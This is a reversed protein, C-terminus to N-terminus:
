KRVNTGIAGQEVAEAMKKAMLQLHVEDLLVPKDLPILYVYNQSQGVVTGNNTGSVTPNSNVLFGGM